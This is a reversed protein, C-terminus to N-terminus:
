FSSRHLFNVVLHIMPNKLTRQFIEINLFKQFYCFKQNVLGYPQGGGGGLSLAKQFCQPFPLFHQYGKGMINEVRHAVLEINKTVNFKDDAFISPRFLFGPYM